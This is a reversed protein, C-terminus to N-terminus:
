GIWAQLHLFLNLLGLSIAGNLWSVIGPHFLRTGVAAAVEMVGRMENAPLAYVYVLNLLLYIAAVALTGHTLHVPVQFKRSLMAVGKCHDSHEHTVLLADLQAPELGLRALRRTTERMSFGCDVMVLTDAAQVLTANGKSGSGLSAFRM